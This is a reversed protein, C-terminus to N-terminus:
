SGGGVDNSGSASASSSQHLYLSAAASDHPMFVYKIDHTMEPMAVEDIPFDHAGHLNRRSDAAIEEANLVSMDDLHSESNNDVLEQRLYKSNSVGRSDCRGFKKELQAVMEEHRRKNRMFESSEGFAIMHRKFSVPITIDSSHITHPSQPEAINSQSHGM